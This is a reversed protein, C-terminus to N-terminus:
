VVDPKHERIVRCLEGRLEMTRELEGDQHGLFVFEKVGIAEGAARQEAERTKAMQTPSMKPDHTGKQGSTIVCYTVDTGASAIWSGITGSCGFDVDDPHAFIAMARRPIDFADAVVRPDRRRAWCPHTRLPRERPRRRPVRPLPGSPRPARDPSPSGAARAPNSRRA